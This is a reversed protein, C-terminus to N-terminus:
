AQTRFFAEADARDRAIQGRLEEVGDFKLEPRLFKLWEVTVSSGAAFPCPGLIHAELLPEGAQGVTPRV